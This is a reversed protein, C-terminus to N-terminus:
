ALPLNPRSATKADHLTIIPAVAPHISPDGLTTLLRCVAYRDSQANYHMVWQAMGAQQHPMLQPFQPPLDSLGARWPKPTLRARFCEQDHCLRVYLPDSGLSQLLEQTTSARPDFLHSTFLLRLGAATRYVRLGLSPQRAAWAQVRQVADAEVKRPDPARSFLAKLGGPKPPFDIDAFMVQETNLIEAGYSNRTVMGGPAAGLIAERLPRQGYGYRDPPQGAAFRQALLSAARQAELEADSQSVDSWRWVALPTDPYGPRRAIATARSWYRPIHM